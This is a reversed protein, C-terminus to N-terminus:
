VGYGQGRGMIFPSLSASASPDLEVVLAPNFQRDEKIGVYGRPNAVV